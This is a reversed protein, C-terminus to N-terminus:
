GRKGPRARSGSSRREMPGDMTTRKRSSTGQRGGAARDRAVIRAIAAQALLKNEERTGVPVELPQATNLGQSSCAQVKATLWFTNRGQGINLNIDDIVKIQFSKALLFARCSGTPM